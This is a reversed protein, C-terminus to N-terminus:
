ELFMKQCVWDMPRIFAWNSHIIRWQGDEEQRYVNATNWRFSVGNACSFLQYTLVAMRHYIQVFPQQMVYKEAFIKGQVESMMMESIAEYGDIRMKHTPDFYTFSEKSFLSLYGSVDGKYWLDLAKSELGIIYDALEQTEKDKYQLAALKNQLDM